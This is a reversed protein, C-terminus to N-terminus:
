KSQGLRLNLREDRAARFAQWPEVRRAHSPYDLVAHDPMVEEAKTFCPAVADFMGDTLDPDDFGDAIWDILLLRERDNLRKIREALDALPTTVTTM